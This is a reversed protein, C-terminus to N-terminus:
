VDTDTQSPHLARRCGEEVYAIDDRIQEACPMSPSLREFLPKGERFVADAKQLYNPSERRGLELLRLTLCLTYAIRACLVRADGPPPADPLLCGWGSERLRSAFARDEPFSVSLLGDEADAVASLFPDDRAKVGWGALRDGVERCGADAGASARALAAMSGPSDM